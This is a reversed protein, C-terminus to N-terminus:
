AARQRNLIRRIEVTTEPEYREVIADIDALDSKTRYSSLERELSKAADHAQRRHHLEDRLQDWIGHRRAPTPTM